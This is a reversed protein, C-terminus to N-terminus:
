PAPAEELYVARVAQPPIFTNASVWVGSAGRSEAETKAAPLDAGEYETQYYGLPTHLTIYFHAM